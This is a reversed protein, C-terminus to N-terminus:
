DVAKYRARLGVVHGGRTDGDGNGNGADAEERVPWGIDTGNIGAGWLESDIKIRFDGNDADVFLQSASQTGNVNNGNKFSVFSADTPNNASIQYHGSTNSSAHNYGFFAIGGATSTDFNYGYGGNNVSTCNVVVLNDSALTIDVGDLTNGYFTCGTIAVYDNAIKVEMGNSGNGYVKCGQIFSHTLVTYIGRSGNDRFSSAILQVYYTTSSSYFGATNNSYVDCRILTPGYGNYYIGVGDADHILCDDFTTYRGDGNAAAYICYTANSNGDFDIHRFELYDITTIKILSTISSATTIVARTGDEEYSSNVGILRWRTNTSGGVAADLDLQATITATGYMYINVDNSAASGNTVDDFIDQLEATTAPRAGGIYGDCNDTIDVDYPVDIEIYVGGVEDINLIEYRGDVYTGYGNFQVNAYAGVVVSSDFEGALGYIQVKGAVETSEKVSLGIFTDLAAGNPGAADSADIIESSYWGANWVSASSGGVLCAKDGLGFVSSCFILLFLVCIKYRM